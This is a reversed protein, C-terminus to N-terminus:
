GIFLFTIEDRNVFRSDKSLILRNSISFDPPNLSVSTKDTFLWEWTARMSEIKLESGKRWKRTKMM